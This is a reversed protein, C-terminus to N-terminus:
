LDEEDISDYLYQISEVDEKNIIDDCMDVRIETENQAIISAGFYEYDNKLKLHCPINLTAIFNKMLIEGGMSVLIENAGLNMM